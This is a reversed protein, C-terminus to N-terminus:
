PLSDGPFSSSVHLEYTFVGAKVGPDGDMIKKVEDPPANFIGIGSVDSDDNVRCVISLVGEDRLQFNRKGHEYLIRGVGPEKIKDTNRLILVTYNKATSLVQMMYEKSIEKM